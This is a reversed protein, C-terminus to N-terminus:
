MGDNWIEFGCISPLKLLKWMQLTKNRRCIGLPASVVNSVPATLAVIHVSAHPVFAIDVLIASTGLGTKPFNGAAVNVHSGCLRFLKLNIFEICLYANGRLGGFSKLSFIM